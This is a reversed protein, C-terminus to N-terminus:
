RVHRRVDAPVGFRIYSQRAARRRAGSASRALRGTLLVTDTQWAPFFVLTRVEISERPPADPALPNDFSTHFSLRARGDNASDHVRILLAEDPQMDSFYNWRHGPQVRGVLDRRACPRYVLDNAILDGRYLEARRMAGVAFGAGARSGAALRQRHRGASRLEEAEAGLHDRVRRPASNVTHDNHVHRSPDAPGQRTANRVNHDFVLVRSAGLKDRLLARSGPLLASSRTPRTSIARGPRRQGPRLRQPRAHSRKAAARTRSRSTTRITSATGARCARRRISALVVGAERHRTEPLPADLDVRPRSGRVLTPTLRGPPVSAERRGAIGSTERGCPM